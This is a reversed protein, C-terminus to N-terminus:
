GGTRGLGRARDRLRRWLELDAWNETTLRALEDPYADRLADVHARRLRALEGDTEPTEVHAYGDASYVPLDAWDISAVCPPARTACADPANPPRLLRAGGDFVVVCDFTRWLRALAADVQPRSWVRLTSSRERHNQLTQFVPPLAVIGSPSRAHCASANPLHVDGCRALAAADTALLTRVYYNRIYHRNCHHLM